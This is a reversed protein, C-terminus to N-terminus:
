KCEYTHWGIYYESVPHFFFYCESFLYLRNFGCFVRLCRIMLFCEDNTSAKKTIFFENFILFIRIIMKCLLHWGFIKWKDSKNYLGVVVEHDGERILSSNCIQQLIRGQYPSNSQRLSSPNTYLFLFLFENFLSM